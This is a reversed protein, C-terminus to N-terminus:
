RRAVKIAEVMIWQMEAAGVLTRLFICFQIARLKLLEMVKAFDEPSLTQKDADVSLDDFDAFGWKLASAVRWVYRKEVPLRRIAELEPEPDKGQMLAMAFRLYPEMDPSEALEEAGEEQRLNNIPIRAIRDDDAM